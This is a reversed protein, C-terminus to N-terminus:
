APLNPPALPGIVACCEVYGLTQCSPLTGTMTYCECQLCRDGTDPPGTDIAFADVRADPRAADPADGPREHAAHCGAVAGGTSAVTSVLALARAFRLYHPPDAM